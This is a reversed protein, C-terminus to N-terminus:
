RLGPPYNLSVALGIAESLRRRVAEPDEDVGRRRPQWHVRLLSGRAAVSVFADGAALRRLAERAAEVRLIAGLVDPYVAKFRLVDDLPPDGIQLDSLIGAKSLTRTVASQRVAQWPFPATAVLQLFAGGPNNKGPDSIRYRCPYGDLRGEAWVPLLGALRFSGPEFVPELRQLRRKQAARAIPIVALALLLIVALIIGIEPHGLKDVAATESEADLSGRGARKRLRSPQWGPRKGAEISAPAM